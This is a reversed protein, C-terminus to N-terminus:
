SAELVKRAQQLKQLEREEQKLEERMENVKEEQKAIQELVVEVPSKKVWPKRAEKAPPTSTPPKGAPHPDQKREPTM